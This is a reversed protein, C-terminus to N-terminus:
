IDLESEEDINLIPENLSSDVNAVKENKGIEITAFEGDQVITTLPGIM